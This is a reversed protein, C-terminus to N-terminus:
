FGTKTGNMTEEIKKAPSLTLSKRNNKIAVVQPASVAMTEYKTPPTGPNTIIM